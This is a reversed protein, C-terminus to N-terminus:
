TIIEQQQFPITLDNLYSKKKIGWYFNGDRLRKKKLGSELLLGPLKQKFNDIENVDNKIFYLISQQLESSKMKDNQDDSIIFYNKLCINLKDIDKSSPNKRELDFLDIFNNIKLSLTDINKFAKKHFLEKLMDNYKEQQTSLRIKKVLVFEPFNKCINDVNTDKGVVNEYIISIKFITHFILCLEDYKIDLSMCNNCSKIYNYENDEIDSISSWNYNKNKFTLLGSEKIMNTDEEIKKDNEPMLIAPKHIIENLKNCKEAISYFKVIDKISEIIEKQEVFQNKSIIHGMTKLILDQQSGSVNIDINIFEIIEDMEKYLKILIDKCNKTNLQRDFNITWYEGIDFLVIKSPLTDM